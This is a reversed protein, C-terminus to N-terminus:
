LATALFPVPEAHPVFPVVITVTAPGVLPTGVVGMSVFAAGVLRALVFGSLGLGPTLPGVRM